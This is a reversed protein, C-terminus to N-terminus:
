HEAKEKIHTLVRKHITHLIYDSWLRWYVGPWLEHRYWTTGELLTKDPSIATLKFQGRESVFYGELHPLHLSDYISMEILPPPVAAVSFRLLDPENWVEIPEIFAGTTFVCRRISGVGKGVIEAKVPYAVGARLILEEPEKLESFTVLQNWVAQKPANVEIRTTVETLPAKLDALHEAGSLLPITGFALLTAPIGKIDKKQMQHGILAGVTAVALGIPTAMVICLLGEMALVMLLLAFLLISAWAVGISKRLPQPEHYGFLVAATLGQMFPIGIFLGTGYEGFGYIILASLLTAFVSTLIVSMAANAWGNRPIIKALWKQQQNNQVSQKTPLLCLLLFFLLNVFPLFFIFVTWISIGIDKLRQVTLVTGIWVFPISTVALAWLFVPGSSQQTKTLATFYDTIFWNEKLYYISLLRDLNYKVAFLIFGVTAYRTRSITGYGTFYRIFFKM